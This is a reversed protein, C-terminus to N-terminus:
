HRYLHYAVGWLGVLVTTVLMMGGVETSIPVSTYTTLVQGAIRSIQRFSPLYALIYEILLGSILVSLLYGTSQSAGAKAPM